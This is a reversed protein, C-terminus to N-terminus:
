QFSISFHGFFKLPLSKRVKFNLIPLYISFGCIKKNTIQGLPLHLRTSLLFTGQFLPLYLLVVYLKKKKNIWVLRILVKIM